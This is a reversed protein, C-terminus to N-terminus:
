NWCDGYKFYTDNTRSSTVRVGNTMPVACREIHGRTASPKFWKATNAVVVAAILTSKAAPRM